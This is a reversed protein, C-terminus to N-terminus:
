RVVIKDAKILKKNFTIRYLYLGKKLNLSGIPYENIFDEEKILVGTNSYIGIRLRENNKTKVYLVSNAKVPIPYSLFDNNNITAIGDWGGQVFITDCNHYKPNLYMLANHDTTCILEGSSPIYGGDIAGIGEIWKISDDFVIRKLKRNYLTISDVRVVTHKHLIGGIVYSNFEEGKKLNFDYLLATKKFRFDNVYVKQSATDERVLFALYEKEQKPQEAKRYLKHYGINDVLTDGKFYSHNVLYHPGESGGTLWVTQVNKWVKNEGIFPVYSKPAVLSHQSYSGISTLSLFLIILLQINKKM